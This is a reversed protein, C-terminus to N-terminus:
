ADIASRERHENHRVSTELIRSLRFVFTSAIVLAAVALSCDVDCMLDTLYFMPLAVFPHYIARNILDEM